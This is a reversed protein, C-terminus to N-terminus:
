ALWRHQAMAAMMLASASAATALVMKWGVGLWSASGRWQCSSALAGAAALKLWRQWRRNRQTEGYAAMRAKSIEINDGSSTMEGCINRQKSVMSKANEGNEIVGSEAASKAMKM